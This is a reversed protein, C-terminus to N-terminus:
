EVSEFGLRWGLKEVDFWSIEIGFWRTHSAAHYRGPRRAGLVFACPGEGFKELRGSLWSDPTLPQALMVPTGGLIALHAQFSQDVQKIPPPVQFAARYRKTAEDLNRVAIVVKTVGSFDKTLPKGNMFARQERPTVDHILFPFFTGRPETGIQATQWELRTGDPRLRGGAVPASVTVGAAGLSKLDAVIDKSRAAWACPGADQKMFRVWPERDLAQADAASQPAMLELYSGDPFSVLAMETTHNSHAGGYVSAIGLSSLRARMQELSSGCVTAHDITLDAAVALVPLLAVLLALRM